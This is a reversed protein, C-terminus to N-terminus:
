PSLFGRLGPLFQTRKKVPPAAAPQKERARASKPPEPTASQSAESPQEDDSFVDKVARKKGRPVSYAVPDFKASFVRM